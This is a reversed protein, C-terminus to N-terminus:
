KPETRESPNMSMIADHPGRNVGSGKVIWYRPDFPPRTPFFEFNDFRDLWGIRDPPSFLFTVPQDDTIIHQLRHSLEFRKARDPEVKIAEMLSDAVPDSFSYYNSGKNKIQSSEWLQSIEDETGESGTQNGSWGGYAAQFNHDRTNELYVSFELQTVQADIGAKKFDNSVILLMQKNVDNGSPVQFTFRFPTLKGNLVKQLIGDPGATWGADALLKKAGAIDYAPQKVTPDFNPQTPAVPGEIKKNLGHSISRLIEDRDVLMTLAKRVNKDAFLPLADNWALFYVGNEYVTDKKINTFKTTDLDNLYQSSTLYQDIDIDGHKLAILAANQDKITKFTIKNPYAEFWPHNKGWYNTDRILTVHDNTIWTEFKYAGSGILHANDRQISADQFADAVQKLAPNKSNSQKLDAWSIKDTFNTPDWIHKPIVRVYNTIKILDYRYKNYHFVVQDNHGAPIWCSDLNAFYSRIPAANIVRPNNVIKYSFVVDEATLPKGDSWHASSDMTFTLTLHDSSEVPMKALQAVYGQTRPNGGTLSEYMEGEVYNALESTSLMPNLEDVDSPSYWVVENKTSLGNAPGGATHCSAFLTASLLLTALYFANKRQTMTM